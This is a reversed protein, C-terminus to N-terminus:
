TPWWIASAWITSASSWWSTTARTRSSTTASSRIRATASAAESHARQRPRHDYRALRRQGLRRASCAGMDSYLVFGATLRAIHQAKLTDPMNYRETPDDANYFYRPSV